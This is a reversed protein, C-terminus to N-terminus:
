VDQGTKAGEREAKKGQGKARQMEIWADKGGANLINQKRYVTLVPVLLWYNPNPHHRRPCVNQTTQIKHALGMREHQCLITPRTLLM